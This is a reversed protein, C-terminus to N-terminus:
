LEELGTYRVILGEGRFLPLAAEPDPATEQAASAICVSAFFGRPSLRLCSARVREIHAPRPASLAPYRAARVVVYAPGDGDSFWLSPDIHLSPQRSLVQGGEEEVTTGVVQIAFDHLEWDSMVVKDKTVLADPDLPKGTLGDVLGWGPWVPEFTAGSARMHLLAPVATAERCVELFLEWRSPSTAGLREGEEVQVYV